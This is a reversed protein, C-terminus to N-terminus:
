ESASSPRSYMGLVSDVLAVPKNERDKNVSCDAKLGDSLVDEAVTAVKEKYWTHSDKDDNLRKLRKKMLFSLRFNRLADNSKHCVICQHSRKQGLHM